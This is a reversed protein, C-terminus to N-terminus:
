HDLNVSQPRLWQIHEQDPCKVRVTDSEGGLHINFQIRFTFTLDAYSGLLGDPQRKDRNKGLFVVCHGQDSNLGPGSLGPSSFHGLWSAVVQVGGM